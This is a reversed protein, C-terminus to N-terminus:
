AARTLQFTKGEDKMSAMVNMFTMGDMFTMINMFNRLNMSYIVNIITRLTMAHPFFKVIM